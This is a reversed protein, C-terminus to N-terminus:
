HSESDGPEIQNCNITKSPRMKIDRNGLAQNLNYSTSKMQICPLWWVRGSPQLSLLLHAHTPPTMTGQVFEAFSAARCCMKLNVHLFRQRHLCVILLLWIRDMIPISFTLNQSAHLHGDLHLVKRLDARNGLLNLAGIDSCARGRGRFKGMLVTQIPQLRSVDIHKERRANGPPEAMQKAFVFLKTKRTPEGKMQGSMDRQISFEIHRTKSKISKERGRCGQSYSLM